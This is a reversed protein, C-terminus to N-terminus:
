TAEEGDPLLVLEDEGTEAVEEQDARAISDAREKEKALIEKIHEILPRLARWTPPVIENTM